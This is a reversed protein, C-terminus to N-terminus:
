YTEGGNTTGWTNRWRHKIMRVHDGWRERNIEGLNRPDFLNDEDIDTGALSTNEVVHDNFYETHGDNWVIGGEWEEENWVSNYEDIVKGTNRDSFIPTRTNMDDRWAKGSSSTPKPRLSAWDDQLSPQGPFAIELMAYSVNEASFNVGANPDWPSKGPVIESPSIVHEPALIDTQVLEMFRPIISIGHQQNGNADLVAGGYTGATQNSDKVAGDSHLGTYYSKNEQAYIVMAQHQSRLNVNNEAKQASKRAAGLAPLLIAILLAIISIVVLLEILTFGSRRRYPKIEEM